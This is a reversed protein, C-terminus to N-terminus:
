SRMAQYHEIAAPFDCFTLTCARAPLCASENRGGRAGCYEGIQIGHNAVADATVKTVACAGSAGDRAFSMGLPGDDFVAEYTGRSAAWPPQAATSVGRLAPM